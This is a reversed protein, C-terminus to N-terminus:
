DNTLRNYMSDYIHYGGIKWEVLEVTHGASHTLCSYPLHLTENNIFNYLYNIVLVLDLKGNFKNIFDDKNICTSNTDSIIAEGDYDDGYYIGSCIRIIGKHKLFVLGFHDNDSNGICYFESARRDHFACLIDFGKYKVVIEAIEMLEDNNLVEIYDLRIDYDHTYPPLYVDDYIIDDESDYDSDEIQLTSEDRTRQMFYHHEDSADLCTFTNKMNYYIEMGLGRLESVTYVHEEHSELPQVYKGHIYIKTIKNFSTWVKNGNPFVISPNNKHSQIYSDNIFTRIIGYSDTKTYCEINEAIIDKNDM